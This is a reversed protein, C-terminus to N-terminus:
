STDSRRRARSGTLERGLHLDAQGWAAALARQLHARHVGWFPAGFREAYWDGVPHAVLRRGDSWRRYVLESPVASVRRRARRRSRPVALIRTGNAALAVAAGVETLEPAREFIQVRIGLGRLALGLTLGGIGAGIVAIDTDSAGTLGARTDPRHLRAPRRHAGDRHEIITM